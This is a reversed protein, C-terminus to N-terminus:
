GAVLGSMATVNGTLRRVMGEVADLVTERRYCDIAAVAAAAHAWEDKGFTAAVRDIVCSVDSLEPSGAFYPYDPPLLRRAEDNSREVIVPAGLSAAIFIKTAPKFGDITRTRRLCYHVNYYPLHRAWAIDLANTTNVSIFDVRRCLTDVHWTNSLEGFYGIRARMWKGAVAPLRPDVHHHILFVPMSSRSSLYDAHTWSAAIVGDFHSLSAEPMPLDVPDALCINRRRIAPLADSLAPWAAPGLCSKNFVLVEDRVSVDLETLARVRVSELREAALEALQFVRLYTSGSYPLSPQCVFSLARDPTM